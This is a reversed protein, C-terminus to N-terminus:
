KARGSEKDGKGNNHVYSRKSLKEIDSKKAYMLVNLGSGFKKVKFDGKKQRYHLYQLSFGYKESADVLSIYDKPAETSKIYRLFTDFDLSWVKGGNDTVKDTKTIFNSELCCPLLSFYSFNYGKEKLFLIIQPLTMEYKM